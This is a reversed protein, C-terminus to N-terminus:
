SSSNYENFQFRNVEDGDKTVLLELPRFLEGGSKGMGDREVTLKTVQSGDLSTAGLFREGAASEDRLYVEIRGGELQSIVQSTIAGPSFCSLDDLAQGRETLQSSRRFM